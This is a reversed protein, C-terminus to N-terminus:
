SEKRRCEILRGYCSNYIMIGHIGRRSGDSKRSPAITCKIISAPWSPRWGVAPYPKRGTRGLAIYRHPHLIRALADRRLMQGVDTFPEIPRIRGARPRTASRAQSQRDTPANHLRVAAGEPDLAGDPLARGHRDPQRLRGYLALNSTTATRVTSMQGSYRLYGELGEHYLM